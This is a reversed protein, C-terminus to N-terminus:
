ADPMPEQIQSEAFRQLEAVSYRVSAGIKLRRIQGNQTLTWLTRESISLSKAAQRATVLIQPCVITAAKASM